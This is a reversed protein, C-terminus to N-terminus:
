LTEAGTLDSIERVADLIGTPCNTCYYLREGGRPLQTDALQNGCARCRGAKDSGFQDGLRDVETTIAIVQQRVDGAVEGPLADDSLTGIADGAIRISAFTMRRADATQTPYERCAQQIQTLLGAIERTTAADYIV